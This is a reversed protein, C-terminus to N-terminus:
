CIHQIIFSVFAFRMLHIYTHVHGHTHTVLTYILLQKLSYNLKITENM